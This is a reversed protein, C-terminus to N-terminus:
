FKGDVMQCMGVVKRVGYSVKRAGYAVNKVENPLNRVFYSGKIDCDSM